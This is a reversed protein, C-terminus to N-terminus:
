NEKGLYYALLHELGQELSVAAKFGLVRAAKTTDALTGQVYGKLPNEINRTRVGLREILENLTYSVGSGVNILDYRIDELEMAKLFAEVVDGVYTLDRSQGGDGYVVFEADKSKAWVLQTLLNAYQKKAEEHEGYVSFLRLGVSQVGFFDNYALAQREMYYRAEAYFDTVHVPMDESWPPENGNYVSSSSAFVIKLGCQKAYELIFCFDTLAEWMWFRAERYIPSSSPIGLHFIGDLGVLGPLSFKYPQTVLQVGAPVNKRSGTSLNDIVVVEHGEKLLRETMNSGIFGAGGTVLYRM